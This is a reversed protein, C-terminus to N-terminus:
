LIAPRFSEHTAPVLKSDPLMVDQHRGIDDLDQGANRAIEDGVDMDPAFEIHVAHNRPETCVHRAPVALRDTEPVFIRQDGPRGVNLTPLDM